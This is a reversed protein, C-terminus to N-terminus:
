DGTMRRLQGTRRASEGEPVQARFYSVQISNTQTFAGTGSVVNSPGVSIATGGALLSISTPTANLVSNWIGIITGAGNAQIAFNTNGDIETNNISAINAPGSWM